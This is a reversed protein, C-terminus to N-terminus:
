AVPCIHAACAVSQRSQADAGTHPVAVLRGCAFISAITVACPGRSEVPRAPIARHPAANGGFSTNRGAVAHRTRLNGIKQLHTAAEVPEEVRYARQATM